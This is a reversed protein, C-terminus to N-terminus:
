QMATADRFRICEVLWFHVEPVKTDSDRLRATAVFALRLAAEPTDGLAQPVVNHSAAIDARHFSLEAECRENPSASFAAQM